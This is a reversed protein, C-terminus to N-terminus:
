VHTQRVKIISTNILSFEVNFMKGNIKVQPEIPMTVTTWNAQTESINPWGQHTKALVRIDYPAGPRLDIQDLNLNNSKIKM